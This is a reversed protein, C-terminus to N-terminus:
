FQNLKQTQEYM